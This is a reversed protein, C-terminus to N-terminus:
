PVLTLTDGSKWVSIERVSSGKDDGCGPKVRPLSDLILNYSVKVKQAKQISLAKFHNALSYETFSIPIEESELSPDLMVDRTPSMSYGKVMISQRVKGLLTYRYFHHMSVAPFDKAQCHTFNTNFSVTLAAGVRAEPYGPACPDETSVIVDDVDYTERFASYYFSGDKTESRVAMPVLTGDLPVDKSNWFAGTGTSRSPTIKYYWSAAEGEEVMLSLLCGTPFVPPTSQAFLSTVTNHTAFNTIPPQFLSPTKSIDQKPLDTDGKVSIGSVGEVGRCQSVREHNTKHRVM